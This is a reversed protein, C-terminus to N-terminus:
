IHDETMVEQRNGWSRMLTLGFELFGPTEGKDVYYTEWPLRTKFPNRPSSHLDSHLQTNTHM